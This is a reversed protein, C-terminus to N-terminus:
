GRARVVEDLETGTVAGDASAARSWAVAGAVILVVAAAPLLFIGPAIKNASSSFLFYVFQLFKPNILLAAAVGLYVGASWRTPGVYGAWLVMVVSVILFLIDSVVLFQREQPIACCNGIDGPFNVWPLFEAAAILVAAVVGVALWGRSGGSRPRSWQIVVTVVAAALLLLATFLAVAQIGSLTGSSIGQLVYILGVFGVFGVAITAGEAVAAVRDPLRAGRLLGAIVIYVVAAASLFVQENSKSHYLGALTIVTAAILLWAVIPRWATSTVRTGGRRSVADFGAAILLVLGTVIWEWGAANAGSILDSMGNQIVAVVLAGLVADIMRGRGGFLSTGGIVAAGVALLLTNKSGADSQVSELLSAALLGSIAAMSSCIVFVSIRVRSVAIGARRAAEDNGGVAYIHRGYRTRNLVFNWLVFLIVLLLVAYPLGESSSAFFANQFLNRNVGMEYVFAAGLGALLLIKVVVVSTPLAPLGARRRTAADHIKVLAYGAVCVALLAWGAWIPMFTGNIGELSVIASKTPLIISGQGGVLILTIGQFGLFTALTIVFSPIGVKARLWGTGFGILVGAIVAVPVAIWLSLGERVFLVAMLAACLGGTTGASLDIEGLLLVFVLGMAMVIIPLAQSVLAEINYATLFGDHVVAFFVILVMLGGLAPLSGTEGGRVRVFYGLLHERLSGGAPPEALDQEFQDLASEATKPPVSM